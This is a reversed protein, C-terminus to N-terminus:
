RRGPRSRSRARPRAAADGLHRDEAEGVLLPPLPHAGGVDGRLRRHASAARRAAAEARRAGYLRGLDYKEASSRGWVAVPFSSRVPGHGAMEAQLLPPYFLAMGNAVMLGAVPFVSFTNGEWVGSSTSPEEM